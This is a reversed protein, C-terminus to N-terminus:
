RGGSGRPEEAIMGMVMAMFTEVLEDALREEAPSLRPLPRARRPRKENRTELVDNAPPVGALAPLDDLRPYRGSPPPEDQSLAPEPPAIQARHAPPNSTM